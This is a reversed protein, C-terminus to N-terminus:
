RWCQDVGLPYGHVASRKGLEEGDGGLGLRGLAFHRQQGVGVARVQAGVDFSESLRRLDAADIEGVGGGFRLDAFAEPGFEGAHVGRGGREELGVLGFEGEDGHLGLEGRGDDVGGEIGAAVDHGFALFRWRM